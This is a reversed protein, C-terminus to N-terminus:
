RSREELRHCASDRCGNEGQEQLVLILNSHVLAGHFGARQALLRRVSQLHCKSFTLHLENKGVVVRTM